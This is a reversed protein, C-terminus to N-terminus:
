IHNIIYRNEYCEESVNMVDALIGIAALDVLEDAYDTLYQEDCYKCFKWVTGSGSLDPNDYERQSSVLCVYDDYPVKPDIAHHDLVIIDCHFVEKIVM